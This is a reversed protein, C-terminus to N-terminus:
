GCYHIAILLTLVFLQLRSPSFARGGIKDRLLARTNIQRTLMRYAVILALATLVFFMEYRLVTSLTDM